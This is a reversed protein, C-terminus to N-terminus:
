SHTRSRTWVFKLPNCRFLNARNVRRGCLPRDDESLAGHSRESRERRPARPRCSEVRSSGAIAILLAAVFVAGAPSAKTTRVPPNTGLRLPISDFDLVHGAPAAPRAPSSTLPRETADPVPPLVFSLNQRSATAAAEDGTAERLKIAQRLSARAMGPDGLCVARTGIQHLARAEASRDGLARAAALCRELNTNWAGWRARAVLAHELLWGLELVEGSRRTEAAHRQVRLLAESEELLSDPHRRHREAWATFYTIARNVWPKLDETRRLRDAIGDALQYRSDSSLVLGRRVLTQLAPEIDNIEGIGSLHQAQLPVGPLATLALLVRRQKEDTTAMLETVLIQPTIPAWGDRPLGRERIITAAQLLRLPHGGIAACLGAAAEREAGDLSREIERELLGMADDAPLGNLAISRAEGWLCRERTAVVFASRPASDLVQELEAQTLHVDDLLILAQKEQLGRRVEAETPKCFEDSEFFAEFLMQQLDTSSQHRARVYITGDLFSAARPHHALHRLIATKGIGPEGSVEIPLGADLASLVSALETQRDLFGRILRPRVFIPTPRPRFRAREARSVERVLAGARDGVELVFRGVAIQDTM